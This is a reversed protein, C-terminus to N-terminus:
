ADNLDTLFHALFPPVLNYKRKVKQGESFILTMWVPILRSLETIDEMLGLKVSILRYMKSRLCRTHARM